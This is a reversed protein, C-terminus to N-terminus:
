VEDASVDWELLPSKIVGMGWFVLLEPDVFERENGVEALAPVVFVEDRVELFAIAFLDARDAAARFTIDRIAAGAGTTICRFREKVPIVAGFSLEEALDACCPKRRGFAAERGYLQATGVTPIGENGFFLPFVEDEMLADIGFARVIEM